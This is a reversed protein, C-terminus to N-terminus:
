DLSPRLSPRTPCVRDVPQPRKPPSKTSLSGALICRCVYERVEFWPRKTKSSVTTRIFNDFLGDLALAATGKVIRKTAKFKTSQLSPSPVNTCRTSCAVRQKM